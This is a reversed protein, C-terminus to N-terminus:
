VSQKGPIGAVATVRGARHPGILRWRMASFSEANFQALAIPFASLIVLVLLQLRLFLRM